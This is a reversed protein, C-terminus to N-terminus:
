ARKFLPIVSAVAKLSELYDAWAQMMKRREPLHEAFNYAARVANREAHALQREPCWEVRNFRIDSPRGARLVASLSQASGPRLAMRRFGYGTMEEKTYGMRRLAALIADESMPREHTRAGPFVYRPADQRSPFVRNTMPELEVLIEVAQRSLPVIHQERM